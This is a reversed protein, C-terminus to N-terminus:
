EGRELAQREARMQLLNDKDESSANAWDDLISREKRLLEAVRAEKDSQASTKATQAQKNIQSEYFEGKIDTIATEIDRSIIPTGEDLLRRVTAQSMDNKKAVRQIAQERATDDDINSWEKPLHEYGKDLVLGSRPAKATGTDVQPDWKVAAGRALPGAHEIFGRKLNNELEKLKVTPDKWSTPDGIVNKLFNEAEGQGMAGQGNAMSWKPALDSALTMLQKHTDSGAEIPEWGDKGRLEQMRRLIGIASRAGGQMDALKTAAAPSNAIVPKGSTDRLLGDKNDQDYVALEANKNGTETQFKREAEVQDFAQKGEALDQQRKGLKVGEKAQFWQRANASKDIKLKELEIRRKEEDSARKYAEEEAKKAAAQQEASLSQYLKGMRIAATTRPDYTAMDQAIKAKVAEYTAQRATEAAKFQDMGQAMLQAVLGKREALSERGSAINAAQKALDQNISNAIFSTADNRKGTMAELIGGAVSLLAGGIKEGTSRSEWWANQDPTKAALEKADSLITETEARAKATARDHTVRNEEIQRANDADAQEMRARREEDAQRQLDIEAAGVAFPDTVDLPPASAQQEETPQEDWPTSPQSQALPALPEPTLQVPADEQDWPYTPLQQPAPPQALLTSLEPPAVTPAELGADQFWPPLEGQAQEAVSPAGTDYQPTFPDLMPDAVAPAMGWDPPPWQM